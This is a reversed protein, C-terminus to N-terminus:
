PLNTVDSKYEITNITKLNTGELEFVNWVNGSFGTPVYFTKALGQYNFVQVKAGSQALETSITSRNTFDHVYFRYTGAVQQLLTTTEPGFSTVDDLDLNVMTGFTKDSWMIHFRGGQGNPGTFHSDLDAPREGWTLVIRWQGFALQPSTAANQATATRGGLCVALFRVTSFGALSCEATYYGAPVGGIFYDGYADTTASAVVEGLLSNLGARLKIGMQPIGSGDLANVITGSLNGQGTAYTDMIMPVPPLDMQTGPTAVGPYRATLYGTGSFEVDYTQSGQLPPVSVTYSGAANTTATGVVQDGRKVQVALGPITQHVYAGGVHVMGAITYTSAPPPQQGGSPLGHEDAKGGCGLAALAAILSVGLAWHIRM